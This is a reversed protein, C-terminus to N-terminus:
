RLRVLRANICQSNQLPARNHLEVKKLEELALPLAEALDGAILGNGKTSYVLDGALGHLYVGLLTAAEADKLQATLGGITGTLVDGSGGTAMGSNGTLNIFTRGDPLAVLSRSGKLVVIAKFKQACAQAVGIRDQQVDRTSMQMLEGMEGPHPTLITEGDRAKVESEIARLSYLADADIILPHPCERVVRRAFNLAGDSRSLGPGFAVAEVNKWYEPLLDAAADVLRGEEDCPLPHSTAEAFSAAFMPLIKDPLCTICLGAGARLVARSALTPAGSMGYSGGCVLVRGADGKHSDLPRHPLLTSASERTICECGTATEAMQGPPTGISGVWIEGSKELGDRLFLGRKPAAFTVTYEAWVFESAAEGTDSNLGSPVDVAIKVDALNVISIAHRLVPDKIDGKFGTGLLADLAIDFDFSRIDDTNNDEFHGLSKYDLDATIQIINLWRDDDGTDLTQQLVRFNLLADGKLDEPACTLLVHVSCHSRLLHRAVAFGDGGNNGKGCVVVVRKGALLSFKMELFEVVRLAANEMLVISPIGYAESATRDFDRMQEASFVKM